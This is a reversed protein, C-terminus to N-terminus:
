GKTFAGLVAKAAPGGALLYVALVIAAIGLVKKLGSLVLLGARNAAQQQLVELGTNWFRHANDDTLADSIGERVADRIDSRLLLRSGGVLAVQERDNEVSERLSRAAAEEGPTTM